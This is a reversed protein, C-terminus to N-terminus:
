IKDISKGVKTITMDLSTKMFNEQLFVCTAAVYGHVHMSNYAHVHVCVHTGIILKLVNKHTCATNLLSMKM